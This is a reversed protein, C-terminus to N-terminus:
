IISLIEDSELMKILAAKRPCINITSHYLAPFSLKIIFLLTSMNTHTHAAAKSTEPTNTNACFWIDTDSFKGFFVKMFPM